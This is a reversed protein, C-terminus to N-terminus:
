LVREYEVWLIKKEEWRLKFWSDSLSQGCIKKKEFEPIVLEWKREVRLNKEEREFKERWEWFKRLMESLVLDGDIESKMNKRYSESM